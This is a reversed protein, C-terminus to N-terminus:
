PPNSSFLVDVPVRYGIHALASLTSCLFLATGHWRIQAIDSTSAHITARLSSEQSEGAVLNNKVTTVFCTDVAPTLCADQM